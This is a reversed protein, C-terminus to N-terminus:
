TASDAAPGGRRFWAIVVAFFGAIRMAIISAPIVPLGGAQYHVPEGRSRLCAQIAQPVGNPSVNAHFSDLSDIEDDHDCQLTGNQGQAQNPDDV